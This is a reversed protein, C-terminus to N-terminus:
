KWLSWVADRIEPAYWLITAFGIYVTTLLLISKLSITM